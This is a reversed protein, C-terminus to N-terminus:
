KTLDSYMKVIKSDAPTISEKPCEYEIHFNQPVAVYQRILNCLSERNVKDAVWDRYFENRLFLILSSDRVKVTQVSALFRSLYEGTSLIFSCFEDWHEPLSHLKFRKESTVVPPSPPAKIRQPVPLKAFMSKLGWLVVRKDLHYDGVCASCGDRCSCGEIMQIANQIIEAIHDYAKDSFGLGGAYM